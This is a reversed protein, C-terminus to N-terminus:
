ETGVGAGAGVDVGDAIGPPRWLVASTAILHRRLGDAAEHTADFYRRQRRSSWRGLRRSRARLRIETVGDSWYTLEVTISAPPRHRPSVHGRSRWCASRAPAAIASVFVGDLRLRTAPLALRLGTALDIVEDVPLPVCRAVVEPTTPPCVPVTLRRRDWPARWRRTRRPRPEAM